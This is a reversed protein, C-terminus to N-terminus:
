PESLSNEAAAHRRRRRSMEWLLGMRVVVLLTLVTATTLFIIKNIRADRHSQSEPEGTIQEVTDDTTAAAPDPLMSRIPEAVVNTGPPNTEQASASHSGAVAALTLFCLLLFM